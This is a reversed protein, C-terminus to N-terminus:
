EAAVAAELSAQFGRGCEGHAQHREPAERDYQAQRPNEPTARRTLMIVAQSAIGGRCDPDCHDVYVRERGEPVVMSLLPPRQSSVRSLRPSRRAQRRSPPDTELM